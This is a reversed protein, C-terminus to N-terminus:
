ERPWSPCARVASGTMIRLLSKKNETKELMKEEKKEVEVSQPNPCMNKEAEVKSNV